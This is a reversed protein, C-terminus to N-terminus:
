SEPYAFGVGHRHTDLVVKSKWLFLFSPSKLKWFYFTESKFRIQKQIIRLFLPFNALGGLWEAVKWRGTWGWAVEIADANRNWGPQRSKAPERSWKRWSRDVKSNTSNLSHHRASCFIFLLHMTFITCIKISQQLFSSSVLKSPLEYVNCPHKFHCAMTSVFSPYFSGLCLISWCVHPGSNSDRSGPHLQYMGTVGTCLFHFRSSLSAVADWPAGRHAQLCTSSCSAKKHSIQASFEPCPQTALEILQTRQGARM